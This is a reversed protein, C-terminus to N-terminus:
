HTKRSHLFDQLARGHLYVDTGQGRHFTAYGHIQNMVGDKYFVEVIKSKPVEDSESDKVLYRHTELSGPSYHFETIPNYSLVKEGKKRADDRAAPSQEQSVRRTLALLDAWYEETVNEWGNKPEKYIEGYTM